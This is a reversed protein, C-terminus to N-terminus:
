VSCWGARHYVLAAREAGIAEPRIACLPLLEIAM